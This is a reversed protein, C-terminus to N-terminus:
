ALTVDFPLQRQLTEAFRMGSRIEDLFRQKADDLERRRMAADCPRLPNKSYRRLWPTSLARAMSKDDVELGFHTALKALNKETDALFDDFRLRLVREGGVAESQTFALESAMWTIVAIEADSLECLAPCEGNLVTAIDTISKWADSRLGQRLQQGRFLAALFDELPISLCMVALATQRKLLLPGLNATFSAHKVITSTANAPLRGLAAQVLDISKEFEAATLQATLHGRTRAESALAYLVGPERLVWAGPLEALLRSVLTSGCHSCQLIIGAPGPSSPRAEFARALPIWANVETGDLARRDLFTEAHLKAKSFRTLLLRRNVPDLELPFLCPDERFDKLWSVLSDAQTM